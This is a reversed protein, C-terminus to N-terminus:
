MYPRKANSLWKGCVILVVIGTQRVRRDMKVAQKRQKREEATEKKGKQRPEFVAPLRTEELMERELQKKTPGPKPLVDLPM